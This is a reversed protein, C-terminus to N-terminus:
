AGSSGIRGSLVDSLKLREEEVVAADRFRDPTVTANSTSSAQTAM